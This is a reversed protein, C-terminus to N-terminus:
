PNARSHASPEPLHVESLERDRTRRALGSDLGQVLTSPQSQPTVRHGLNRPPAGPSRQEVAQPRGASQPDAGPAHPALQGPSHGDVQAFRQRQRLNDQGARELATHCGPMHYGRAIHCGRSRYGAAKHYGLNRYGLAKHCCDVLPSDPSGALEVPAHQERALVAAKLVVLVARRRALARHCYGVALVAAATRARPVRRDLATCRAQAEHGAAALSGLRHCGAPIRSDLAAAPDGTEVAQAPPPNRAWDELNYRHNEALSQLCALLRECDTAATSVKQEPGEGNQAERAQEVDRRRREEAPRHQEEGLRHPAGVLRHQERQAPEGLPQDLAAQELNRVRPTRAAPKHRALVLQLQEELSLRV